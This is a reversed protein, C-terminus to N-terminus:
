KSLPTEASKTPGKELHFHVSYKTVNVRSTVIRSGPKRKERYASYPEITGIVNGKHLIQHIPKGDPHALTPKKEVYLEKQLM